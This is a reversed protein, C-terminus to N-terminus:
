LIGNTTKHMANHLVCNEDKKLKLPASHKLSKAPISRKKQLVYVYPSTHFIDFFANPINV